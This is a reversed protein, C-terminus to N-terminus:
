KKLFPLSQNAQPVDVTTYYRTKQKHFMYWLILCLIMWGIIGIITWRGTSYVSLTEAM